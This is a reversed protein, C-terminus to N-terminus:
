APIGAPTVLPGPRAARVAADLDRLREYGERTGQRGGYCVDDFLRAASLLADAHAPLARGAEAAFEDATRGADGALVAREELDAAVARLCEIIAAAFDGEAALRAARERHGRATLPRTGRLPGAGARRHPRGVPGILVRVVGIVIVALAALAVFAWWGGPTATNVDNYFRALWRGITGLIRQALPAGPHYVAKSLEDRALRRGEGRGVDPQGPPIM